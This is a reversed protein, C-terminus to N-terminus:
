SGTIQTIQSVVSSWAHSVNMSHTRAHGNRGSLWSGPHQSVPRRRASALVQALFQSAYICSRSHSEVYEVARAQSEAQSRRHGHTPRSHQPLAHGRGLELAAVSCPGTRRRTRLLKSAETLIGGSANLQSSTTAHLEPHPYLQTPLRWHHRELATLPCRQHSGIGRSLWRSLWIHPFCLSCARTGREIRKENAFLWLHRDSREM